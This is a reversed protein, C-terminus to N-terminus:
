HNWKLLPLSAMKRLNNKKYFVNSRSFWEKLREKLVATKNRFEMLAADVKADKL